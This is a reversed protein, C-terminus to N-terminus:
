RVGGIMLGVAVGFLWVALVAFVASAARYRKRRREEDLTAKVIRFFMQRQVEGM